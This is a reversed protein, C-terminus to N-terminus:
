GFVEEGAYQITLYGDKKYKDYYEILLDTNRPIIEGIYLFIAETEKLTMKKRIFLMIDSVKYTKSFTFVKCELESVNSDKYKELYVILSNPSKRSIRKIDDETPKSTLLKKTKKESAM